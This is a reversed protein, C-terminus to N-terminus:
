ACSSRRPSPSASGRRRESVVQVAPATADVLLPLEVRATGLGDVAEVSVTYTGDAGERPAEIGDWTATTSM